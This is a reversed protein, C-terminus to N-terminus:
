IAVLSADSLKNYTPLDPCCNSSSETVIILFPVPANYSKLWLIFLVFNGLYVAQLGASREGGRKSAM